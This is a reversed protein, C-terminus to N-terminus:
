TVGELEDLPSKFIWYMQLDRPGGGRRMCARRWRQQIHCQQCFDLALSVMDAPALWFLNRSLRGLYNYTYTFPRWSMLM